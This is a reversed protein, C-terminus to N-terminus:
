EAPLRNMFQHTLAAERAVLGPSMSICTGAYGAIASAIPDPYIHQCSKFQGSLLKLAHWAALHTAAATAGVMDDFDSRPFVSSQHQQWPGHARGGDCRAGVPGEDCRGEHVYQAAGSEFDLKAILLGAALRRDSLIPKCAAPDKVGVCAARKTADNIADAFLHMRAQRAELSETDTKHAHRSMLINFIATHLDM